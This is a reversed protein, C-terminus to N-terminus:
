IEIRKLDIMEPLIQQMFDETVERARQRESELFEEYTAREEESWGDAPILTTMYEKQFTLFAWRQNQGLTLRDIIDYLTREYESATIKRAGVYTYYHVINTRFSGLSKGGEEEPPAPQIYTCDLAKMPIVVTRGDSLTLSYNIDRTEGISWGQATLCRVPRHLSNNLDNGALVVSAEVVDNELASPAERHRTVSSTYNTRSFETDPALANLEKQSVEGEEGQWPIGVFTPLDMDVAAKRLSFNQPLALATGLGAMILAAGLIFGTGAPASYGRNMLYYADDDPTVLAESDQSTKEPDNTGSRGFVKGWNLNVLKAFGVMCLIAVPFFIIYVSADHFLDAPNPGFFRSILIICTVRVINGILTFVLTMGFILIWKWLRDQTMYVYLSALMLMAMLSRIGSCGRDIEYDGMEGGGLSILKAGVAEVEIGFLGVIQGVAGAIYSQLFATGQDLGPFPIMLWLFFTPFMVLKATKWGCILLILGWAIVPLSAVVIRPQLVRYGVLYMMLGIALVAIGFYLCPNKPMLYLKNRLRWFLFGIILPSLWGHIYDNEPNWSITLWGIASATGSIFPSFIGYMYILMAVIAALLGAQLPRQRIWGLFAQGLNIETDERLQDRAAVAEGAPLTADKHLQNPVEASAAPPNDTSAHSM